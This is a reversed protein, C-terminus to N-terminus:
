AHDSGKGTNPTMTRGFESLAVFTVKDLLNRDRMEYYFSSVGRQVDPLLGNLTAKSLAHGDHGGQTVLFVDRNVERDANKIIMKAVVALQRGVNGHFGYNLSVSGLLTSLYDTRNLM